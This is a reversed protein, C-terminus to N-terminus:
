QNRNKKIFDAEGDLTARLSYSECKGDTSCSKPEYRYSSGEQGLKIGNPDTLLEPDLTKLTNPKINEPYYKNTQYFSEELSYYIANIAIKKKSNDDEKKMHQLQFMLVVGAGIIFAAVVLVEIVTFGSKKM